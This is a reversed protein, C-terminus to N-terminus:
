VCIRQDFAEEMLSELIVSEQEYCLGAAPDVYVPNSQQCGELAIVAISETLSPPMPRPGLEAMCSGEDPPPFMDDVYQIGELWASFASIAQEREFRNSSMSEHTM